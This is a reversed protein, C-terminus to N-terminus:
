QMFFLVKKKKKSSYMVNFNQVFPFEVSESSLRLFLTELTQNHTLVLTGDKTLTISKQTGEAKQVGDSKRSRKQSVWRELLM